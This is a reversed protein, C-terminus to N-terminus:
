VGAEAKAQDRYKVLLSYYEEYTLGLATCATAHEKGIYRLHWPEYSYGTISEKGKQYRIIFGYKTCNNKMWQYSKTTDFEDVLSGYKNVITSSCVDAALGTHHESAGPPAIYEGAKAEAQERSYGQNLYKNTRTEFKNKQSSYTRYGSYLVLDTIGNSRADSLLQVLANAATRELQYQCGSPVVLDTPAYDSSVKNQKNTLISYKSTLFSNLTDYATKADMGKTLSFEKYSASVTQSVPPTQPEPEPEPKPEPEPEPEPEPKSDVSSQNDTVQSENEESDQKNDEENPVTQNQEESPQQNDESQEPESVTPNNESNDPTETSNNQSQEVTSNDTNEVIEQKEPKDTPKNFIDTFLIGTVILIGAILFCLGTIIFKNKM